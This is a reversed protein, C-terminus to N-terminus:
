LSAIHIMEGDNESARVPSSCDIWFTLYGYIIFLILSKIDNSMDFAIDSKIYVPILRVTANNMNFFFTLPLAGIRIISIILLLFGSKAFVNFNLFVILGKFYANNKSISKTSPTIQDLLGPFINFTILFTIFLAGYITWNIRIIYIYERITKPSHASNEEINEDVITLTAQQFSPSNKNIDDQNDKEVNLKKLEIDDINDNKAATALMVILIGIVGSTNMGMSFANIYQPHLCGIFGFACCQLVSTFGNVIFASIM